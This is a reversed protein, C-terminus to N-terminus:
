LSGNQSQGHDDLAKSQSLAKSRDSRLVVRKHRSVTERRRRGAQRQGERSSEGQHVGQRPGTHSSHRARGHAESM